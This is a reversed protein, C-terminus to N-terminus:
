LARTDTGGGQPGRNDAGGGKELWWSVLGGHVHGRRANRPWWGCVRSRSLGGRAREAMEEVWLGRGAWGREHVTVKESINYM